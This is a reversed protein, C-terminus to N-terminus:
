TGVVDGNSLQVGARTGAADSFRVLRVMDPLIITAALIEGLHTDRGTFTVGDQVYKVISAHMHM